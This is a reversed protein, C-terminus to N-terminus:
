ILFVCNRIYVAIADSRPPAHSIPYEETASPLDITPLEFFVPGVGPSILQQLQFNDAAKHDNELKVQKHEDKCCGKNDKDNKEMGCTGCKKSQSHGNHSLGWDVLKDMCYHLHVTAGVSSSLYLISLIVVVAKKM